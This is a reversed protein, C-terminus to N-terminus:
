QAQWGEAGILKVFRVGGLIEQTLGEPANVIKILNQSFAGGVPVVM